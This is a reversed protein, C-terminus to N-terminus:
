PLVIMISWGDSWFSGRDSLGVDSITIPNSAYYDVHLNISPMCPFKSSSTADPDWPEDISSSNACFYFFNHLMELSSGLIHHPQNCHPLFDLAPLRLLTPSPSIVPSQRAQRMHVVFASRRATVRLPLWHLLPFPLLRRAGTTTRPRWQRSSRREISSVNRHELQRRRNCDSGSHLIRASRGSTDSRHAAAAAAAHRDTWPQLHTVADLPM